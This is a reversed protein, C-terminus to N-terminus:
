RMRWLPEHRLALGADDAKCVVIRAHGRNGFNRRECVHREAVKSTNDFTADRTVTEAPVGSVEELVEALGTLVDTSTLTM